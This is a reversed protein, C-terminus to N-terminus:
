RQLDVEIELEINGAREYVLTVPILDGHRWPENLGMFMVHDGGRVLSRIGGSPIAFGEEVEMMRMVGDGQDVHTHLEVRASADSLVSVLRDESEGDNRIVMFAAGTKASPGAARAYAGEVSIEALSPNVSMCLIVAALSAITRSSGLIPKPRFALVNLLDTARKQDSMRQPNLALIALRILSAWHSGPHNLRMVPQGSLGATHREAM